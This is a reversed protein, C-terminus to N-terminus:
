APTLRRVLEAHAPFQAILGDRTAFELDDFEFGPMCACGVLAWGDPAEAGLWTGAPVVCQPQGDAALVHATHEGEPAIQHLTLGPGDHHFWIEDQRLRHLRSVVQGGILFHIATGAAREGYPTPVRHMSRWTERYWGGEPHPHLDLRDILVRASAPLTM